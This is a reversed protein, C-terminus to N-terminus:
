LKEILDLLQRKLEKLRNQPIGLTLKKECKDKEEDIHNRAIKGKKSLQVMKCRRDSHSGTRRIYNKRYLKDIVRSGRSISLGMRESFEKCTMERHRDLCILGKFEAKSLFMKELHKKRHVISKDSLSYIIEILKLNDM